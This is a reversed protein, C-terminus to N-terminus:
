FVMPNEMDPLIHREFRYIEGIASEVSNATGTFFKNGKDDEVEISIKMNAAITM